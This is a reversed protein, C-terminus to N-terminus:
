NPCILLYRSEPILFFTIKLLFMSTGLLSFPEDTVDIKQSTKLKNWAQKPLFLLPFQKLLINSFLQRLLQLKSITKKGSTLSKRDHENQKM